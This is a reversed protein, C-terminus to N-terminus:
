INGVTSQRSVTSGNGGFRAAERAARRQSELSAQQNGVIAAQIATDSTYAQGEISALRGQTQALIAAQGFEKKLTQLDETGIQTVYSEAVSGGPVGAFQAFGAAQAAAGIEAGRVQKRVADMGLKPDLLYGIALGKDIGHYTTLASLVDPQAEVRVAADNVREEWERPSVLGGIAKGLIERTGYLAPDVGYANLTETMGREAEIYAGESIAKGQASLAAMGPFRANYADKGTGFRIEYKIESPTKNGKILNDIVTVLDTLGASQMANRFEDIALAVTAQKDSNDTKTVTSTIGSSAPPTFAPSVAIPLSGDEARGNADVDVLGNVTQVSGAKTWTSTTKTTDTAPATKPAASPDLIRGSADVYQLSSGVYQLGEKLTPAAAAEAAARARAASLAQNALKLDSPDIEPDYIAM